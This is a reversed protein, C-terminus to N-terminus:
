SAVIAATRAWVATREVDGLHRFGARVAVRAAAVNARDIRAWVQRLGLPPGLGWGALLSVAASALGRRRVPASIWWGIEARGAGPDINRLGVEGWVADAEEVDGGAAALPAVVLDLALGRARRTAEGAIWRAALEPSAGAPVTGAARLAPDDWADALASADHPRGWPRLVIGADPDALPPEPLPLAGAPGDGAGPPAPGATM